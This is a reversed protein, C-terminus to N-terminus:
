GGGSSIVAHQVDWEDHVVVVAMVFIIINM